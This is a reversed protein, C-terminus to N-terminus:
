RKIIKYTGIQGNVSVKMIYAGAALASVDLQSSTANVEQGVVQQGLINYIGVNDIMEVSTLNIEGTTPNPAYAFGEIVNDGANLNEGDIVIDTIGDTNVVFVYYAQGATTPIIASTGPVCQNGNWVVLELDTESASEDPASYFVVSSTGAPSVIEATAFGDAEPVFNYWVGNAGVISCGSPDGGELTAAPMAVAPDTYPFGIEDVDISNVIMDNPPPVPACTLAMSFNGTGSAFGHVLIYYTTLGDGQFEVESQLGCTDDNDVVCVLAGCDGSYVTIKSDYDTGGDCLSLTYDTVLGTTDTFTYWVGPATISTGCEPSTDVTQGVTSGVVTEGCTIPLAGACDDFTAGQNAVSNWAVQSLGGPEIQALLTTNGTTVDVSRLEADFLGGNFASMYWTDTSQDWSLGQGFNADFGISGVNTAAGTALDVSYLADDAIDYMYAEGSDNIALGIALAGVNGMSGVLTASLGAVDITYLDVTTVAYLVGDDPNFEIGTVDALGINGLSTYVGTAVDVSFAEGQNDIVYATANDNPDIAGANEFNVTIPTAAVANFTGPVGADIFGYNGGVNEVGQIIVGGARNSVTSNASRFHNRLATAETHTFFELISGSQDGLDAYRQLLESVPTQPESNSGAQVDFQANQATLTLAACALIGM